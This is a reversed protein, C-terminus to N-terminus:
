TSNIKARANKLEKRQTQLKKMRIKKKHVRICEECRCGMQYRIEGHLKWGREKNTKLRHCLFCLVQCKKLEKTRREVSWTWVSHHIKTKPDKHDVELRKSSGCKKCPGNAELWKLRRAKVWANNKKRVLERNNKYHTRAWQRKYERM